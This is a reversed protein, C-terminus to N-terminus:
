KMLARFLGGVAQRVGQETAQNVEERAARQAADTTTETTTGFRSEESAERMQQHYQQMTDQRMKMADRMEPSAMLDRAEKMQQQYEAMAEPNPLNGPGADVVEIGAPVMFVAQDIAPNERISVAECVFGMGMMDVSYKLPIGKWLCVQYGLQEATWLECTKGIVKATGGRVAGMAELWREGYDRTAVAKNGAAPELMDKYNVRTARKSILDVNYAWEGNIIDLTNHRRTVGMMSVVAETARSQRNGYSDFILRETGERAGSLTYNIEASKLEFPRDNGARSVAPVMLFVTLMVAVNKKM